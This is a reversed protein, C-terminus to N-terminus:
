LCQIRILLHRLDMRKEGLNATTHMLREAAVAGDVGCEAKEQVGSLFIKLSECMTKVTGLTEQLKGIRNEFQAEVKEANECVGNYDIGVPETLLLRQLKHADDILTSIDRLCVGKTYHLDTHRDVWTKLMAKTFPDVYDEAYIGWRSGTRHTQIYERQNNIPNTWEGNMIQDPIPAPLAAAKHAIATTEYFAESYTTRLDLQTYDGMNSANRVKGVTWYRHQRFKVGCWLEEVVDGTYEGFAMRTASTRVGNKYTPVYLTYKARYGLLIDHIEEDTPM